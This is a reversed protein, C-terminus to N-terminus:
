LSNKTKNKKYGKRVILKVWRVLNKKTGDM